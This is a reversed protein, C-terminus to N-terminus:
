EMISKMYEHINAMTGGVYKDILIGEPNILYRVTPGRANYREAVEQAGYVHRGPVIHEEFFGTNLLTDPQMSISIIEVQNTGFTELIDNRGPLERRYVDDEPRYFELIVYKGKMDQLKLSDGQIDQVAFEPAKMGPRLYQIEYAAQEAWVAWPTDAFTVQMTQTVALAEVFEMSDQHAIVRESAIEAQHTITEAKETLEDLLTLAASHGNQRAEAQRAARAATGFHGNSGPMLRMRAVVVSDEWGTGLIIAQATALESGMSSPFTQQLNWLIMTTQMIRLRVKEEDYVQGQVLKFLAQEHQAMINQYAQLSSNERSRIRLNRGNLPFAVVLSASDGQAVAIQGSALIQGRRSIFLRYVGRAPSDVQMSFQGSSDTVAYGLTDPEGANDAAVLIEFDHYDTSPDIEPRISLTGQFSSQVRATEQNAQACALGCMTLMGYLVVQRADPFNKM